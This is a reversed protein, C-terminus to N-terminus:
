RAESEDTTAAQPRTTTTPDIGLAAEASRMATLAITICTSLPKSGRMPDALTHAIQQLAFYMQLKQEDLGSSPTTRGNWATIVDGLAGDIHQVFAGCQMCGVWASNLNEGSEAPGGCFPCPFLEIM